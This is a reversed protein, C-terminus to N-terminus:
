VELLYFHGGKGVAQSDRKAVAKLDAYGNGALARKLNALLLGAFRQSDASFPRNECYYVESGSLGQNTHGNFHISLFLQAGANNAIDIRAQLDDDLGIPLRGTVSKPPNNVSNDTTRTLVPKYGARTLLDGVKLAVRLNLDKELITTGDAFRYVAGIESGGHGADIAVVRGGGLPPIETAVAEPPLLGAEKAIDGGNAITVQGARAWPVDVKWQQMVTRQFRVVFHNGNDVVRSVPLGYVNLADPTGLYRSKIAPNADLLALR